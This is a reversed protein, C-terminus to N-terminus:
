TLHDSYQNERKIDYKDCHRLYQGLQRLSELSTTSAPSFSFSLLFFDLIAEALEELWLSQPLTPRSDTKARPMYKSYAFNVSLFLTHGGGGRGQLSHGTDTSGLLACDNGGIVIAGDRTDRNAGLPLESNLYTMCIHNSM